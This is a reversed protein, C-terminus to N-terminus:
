LYDPASTEKLGDIRDLQSYKKTKKQMGKEQSNVHVARIVHMEFRESRYDAVGMRKGGEEVSASANNTRPSPSPWFLVSSVPCSDPICKNLDQFPYGSGRKTEPGPDRLPAQTFTVHTIRSKM